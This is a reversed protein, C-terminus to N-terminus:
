SEHRLRRVRDLIGDIHADPFSISERIRGGKDAVIVVPHCAQQLNLELAMSGSEDALLPLLLDHDNAIERAEKADVTAVALLQAREDGFDALRDSFRKLIRLSAKLDPLFIIVLPTKGRYSELSLAQGTSSPLNFDPVQLNSTAIGTMSQRYGIRRDGFM